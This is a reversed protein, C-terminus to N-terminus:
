LLYCGYGLREMEDKARLCPLFYSELVRDVVDEDVTGAQARGKESEGYQLGCRDLTARTCEEVYPCDEAVVLVQRYPGRWEVTVRNESPTSGAVGARDGGDSSLLFVDCDCALGRLLDTREAVSRGFDKRATSAVIDFMKDISLTAAPYPGCEACEYSLRDVDVEGDAVVIRWGGHTPGGKTIWGM